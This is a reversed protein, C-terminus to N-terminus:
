CDSQVRSTSFRRTAASTNTCNTAHPKIQGHFVIARARRSKKTQGLPRMTSAATTVSRGRLNLRQILRENEAYSRLLLNHDHSLERLEKKACLLLREKTSPWRLRPRLSHFKRKFISLCAGVEKAAEEQKLHFLAIFDDQCFHSLPKHSQTASPCAKHSVNDNSHNTQKHLQLPHHRPSGVMSFAITQQNNATQPATPPM